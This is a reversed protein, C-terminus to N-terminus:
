FANGSSDYKHNEEEKVIYNNLMYKVDAANSVFMSKEFEPWSRFEVYLDQMQKISLDKYQTFVNMNLAILRIGCGPILKELSPIIRDAPHYLHHRIFYWFYFLENKGYDLIPVERKPEIKVVYLNELFM